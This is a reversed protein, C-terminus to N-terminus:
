AAKELFARLQRIAFREEKRVKNPSTKMRRGTEELSCKEVFRFQMLERRKETLARHLAAEIQNFFKEEKLEQETFQPAPLMDALTLDDEGIIKFISDEFPANHASTAPYRISRFNNFCYLLMAGRITHRCFGFFSIYFNPSYAAIRKFAGLLGEQILDESPVHFACAYRRAQYEIYDSVEALYALAIEEGPNLIPLNM